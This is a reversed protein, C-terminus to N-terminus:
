GEWVIRYILGARDDSVLLSGDPLELLDVPRGHVRGGDLWGEAFPEKATPNGETDFRVRMIRYGVKESRNWSGHQAVLADGRYEDPFMAGEYFRIGLAAVHAQFSVEPAVVAMPPERNEYGTLHIEGGRWPFGFHAGPERVRNLEDPPIDDGMHDAGHDTFWLEGTAPHWDFGVSNRVGDAVVEWGSGDPNMRVIKGTGAELPCINCPAGLSVHLRGEPGFAAYRWGHHRADHLGDRVTEPAGLADPFADPLPWAVVRDQLAAYLRGDRIALGNPVNLGDAVRRVADARGDGDADQVAHIASGRSGVYVIGTAPDRVMSRASPVEAHISIRFGDPLAIRDLWAPAQAAAPAAALLPALIPAARSARPM